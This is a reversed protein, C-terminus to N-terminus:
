EGLLASLPLTSLQNEFGVSSSGAYVLYGHHFRKGAIQKLHRLGKFHSGDVGGSLKVEIGCIRGDEGEIVLDVENQDHSRYHYLRVPKGAWGASKSVEGIVLTEIMQGLLVPNAVLAAEDVGALVSAIATDKLIIKQQRALRATAGGSWAPLCDTLFVAELLALYRKISTQPAALVRSLDSVNLLTATRGALLTLLRFVQSVNEVRSVQLLDREIITQVYSRLWRRAADHSSRAISEPYGGRVILDALQAHSQSPSTPMWPESGFFRGIMDMSVGAIERRSLPLLTLTKMRGALTDAVHPLATIEASGTLLFRGPKRDRDVARKIPLLIGPARQVEDITVQDPLGEVFGQPDSQAASLVVLDDMTLYNRNGELHQVLTSKGAQRPGKLFVVPDERLSQELIPLLSRAIM